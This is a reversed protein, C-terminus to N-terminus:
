GKDILAQMRDCEALQHANADGAFVERALVLHNPARIPLAPDPLIARRALSLDALNWHIEAPDLSGTDRSWVTLGIGPATGSADFESIDGTLIGLWYRDLALFRRGCVAEM